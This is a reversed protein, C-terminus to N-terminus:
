LIEKKNNKNYNLDIQVISEMKHMKKLTKLVSAM